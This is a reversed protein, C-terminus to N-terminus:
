EAKKGLTTEGAGGNTVDGALRAYGVGRDVIVELRFSVEEFREHLLLAKEDAELIQFPDCRVEGEFFHEDPHRAAGDVQHVLVALKEAQDDHFAEAPVFRAELLVTTEDIEPLAREAGNEAAVLELALQGGIAAVCQGALHDVDDQHGEDFAQEAAV